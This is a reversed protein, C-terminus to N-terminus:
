AAEELLVLADLWLSISRSWRWGAHDLALEVLARAQRAQVRRNM